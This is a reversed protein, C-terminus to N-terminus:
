DDWRLDMLYASIVGPSAFGPRLCVYRGELAKVNEYSYGGYSRAAVGSRPQAVPDLGEPPEVAALGRHGARPRESADDADHPRARESRKFQWLVMSGIAVGILGSNLLILVRAYELDKYFKGSGCRAAAMRCGCGCGHVRPRERASGVGRRPPSELATCGSLHLTARALDHLRISHDRGALTRRVARACGMARFRQGRHHCARAAHCNAVRRLLRRCDARRGDAGCDASLDFDRRRPAGLLATGGLCRRDSRRGDVTRV